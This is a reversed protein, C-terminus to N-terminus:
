VPSKGLLIRLKEGCAVRRWGTMLHLLDVPESRTVARYLEGVEQRNTVLAPDLKQEYCIVQAAAWLAYPQIRRVATGVVSTPDGAFLRFLDFLHVADHILPGEEDATWAPFPKVGQCFGYLPVLDGIM